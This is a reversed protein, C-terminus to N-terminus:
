YQVEEANTMTVWTVGGQGDSVAFQGVSGNTSKTLASSSNAPTFGLATTVDSSTLEGRISASSKNEVNGLGINAKTINVNGTRYTSESDGKVGSVAGGGGGSVDANKWKNTTEDFTLVQGTKPQTISYDDSQALIGTNYKNNPYKCFWLDITINTDCNIELSTIMASGPITSVTNHLMNIYGYQPEDYDFYGPITVSGSTTSSGTTVEYNVEISFTNIFSGGTQSFYLCPNEYINKSNTLLVPYPTNATVQYHGIKSINECQSFGRGLYGDILRDPSANAWETTTGGYPTPVSQAILIDGENPRYINTDDMQSITHPIDTAETFKTQSNFGEVIFHSHDSLTYDVIINGWMETQAQMYNPLDSKKITVSIKPPDYEIIDEVGIFSGESVETYSNIVVRNIKSFPEESTSGTYGDCYIKFSVIDDTPEEVKAVFSSGWVEQDFFTGQYTQPIFGDGLRILGSRKTSAIPVEEKSIPKYGLASTVNNATMGALIQSSSKNEVLSLGVMGKNLTVDGKQYVSDNPGRVGTVVYDEADTQSIYLADNPLDSITTPVIDDVEDKTYYNSLDITQSGLLEWEDDVYIYETYLDGSEEESNRLLYITTTSIDETPLEEVVLISFKPITDVLAVVEAKTYTESKTYYNVLDNVSKTIFTAERADITALFGDIATKNYWGDAIYQKLLGDYKQLNALSVYTTAM